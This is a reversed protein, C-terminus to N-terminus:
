PKADPHSVDEPMKYRAYGWLYQGPCQLILHEMAVNIERVADELAAPLSHLLPCAHVRYGRGWGLREGWVLLVHAGTHLALRAALPSVYADRGFVPAIIGMGAPPVQDPLLGVCGGRRLAQVLRRVGSLDTPVACMGPRTRAGEVVARLWAKRPPRFLVTIPHEAGFRAAFAQAAVEFCGLHPTLLLLGQGSQLASEIHAAGTWEVAVPKGFWLRPLEAVMKGAEGVARWRERRGVGAQGAHSLYRERYTASGLYAAWGLGWGVAHLLWLPCHSLLRFIAQM